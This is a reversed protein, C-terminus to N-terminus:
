KLLTMKNIKTFSGAQVRYLYVGSAVPAGANDTANWNIAHVGAEVQGTVLTKVLRGKIDFIQLTVNSTEPLSFRITTTPNFPNPYNQDLAFETPVGQATVDAGAKAVFSEVVRVNSLKVETAKSDLQFVAIVGANVKQGNTGAVAYTVANDNEVYTSLSNGNFAAGDEVKVFRAGQAAFDFQVGQANSLGNARVIALNGQFEVSLKGNANELSETKGLAASGTFAKAFAAYDAINIVGDNNFDFTTTYTGAGASAGYASAFLALDAVDVKNDGNGDGTVTGGIATGDAKNSAESDNINDTAKVIYSAKSGLATADFNFSITGNPNKTVQRADITAVLANNDANFVKYGTVLPVFVVSAMNYFQTPYAQADVKDHDASPTMTVTLQKGTAGDTIKVDKGVPAPAFADSTAVSGIFVGASSSAGAAISLSTGDFTSVETKGQAGNGAAVAVVYYFQTAGTAPVVPIQLTFKGTSSDVAPPAFQAVLVKEGTASAARYVEYRGVKTMGASYSSSFPDNASRCITAAVVSGNTNAVPAVSSCGDAPQAVVGANNTSATKADGFSNATTFSGYNSGAAPLAVPATSQANPWSNASTDNIVATNTLGVTIKSGTNFTAGPVFFRATAGGNLSQVDTPNIPLNFSGLTMTLDGLALNKVPESFNVDFASDSNVTVSVVAPGAHDAGNVTADALKNASFDQVASGAVAVTPAANTNLSSDDLMFIVEDDNTADAGGAGLVYKEIFDVTAPKAAPSGTVYGSPVFMVSGSYGAIAFKTAVNSGLKTNDVSTVAPTGTTQTVVGDVLLDNVDEDFRVIVHDMKGNRNADVFMASVVKPAELDAISLESGDAAAAVGDANVTILSEAKDNVFGTFVTANAGAAPATPLTANDKIDVLAALSKVKDKSADTTSINGDTTIDLRLPSANDYVVAAAGIATATNVDGTAATGNVYGFGANAAPYVSSARGAATTTFYNNLEESVYLRVKTSGVRGNARYAVPGANDWYKATTNVGVAVNGAADRITSGGVPARLEVATAGTKVVIFLTGNDFAAIQDATLSVNIGDFSGGKAGPNVSGISSGSTATSGVVLEVSTVPNCLSTFSGSLSLVNASSLSAAVNGVASTCGSGTSMPSAIQSGRLAVSSIAPTAKTDWSASEDFRVFVVNNPQTGSASPHDAAGDIASGTWGTDFRVSSYGSVTLGVPDNDKGLKSFDIPESYVLKYSDIKGNRKNTNTNGVYVDEAGAYMLVPAAGDTAFQNVAGLRGVENGVADKLNKAGGAVRNYEVYPKSNSLCNDAANGVPSTTYGDYQITVFRMDTSITTNERKLPLYVGPDTCAGADQAIEFNLAYDAVATFNNGLAESFEMSVHDVYGDANKDATQAMVLAPAANDQATVATTLGASARLQNDSSAVVVDRIRPDTGSSPKTQQVYTISPTYGTNYGKNEQVSYQVVSYTIGAANNTTTSSFVNDVVTASPDLDNLDLGNFSLGKVEEPFNVVESYTVQIIDLKGDLDTDRTDAFQIYPAVGDKVTVTSAQIARGGADSIVGARTVAPVEGTWPLGLNQNIRITLESVVSTGDTVGELKAITHGAVAFDAAALGTVPESFTIKVGDIRGDEPSNDVTSASSFAPFVGDQEVLTVSDINNLETTDLFKVDGLLSNYTVDPIADGAPSDTVFLIIDTVGAARTYGLATAYAAPTTFSGAAVPTSTTGGGTNATVMNFAPNATFATGDALFDIVLPKGGNRLPDLTFGTGSVAWGLYNPMSAADPLRTGDSALLIADVKGNGNTDLTFIKNFPNVVTQAYAASTMLLGVVFLALANQLKKM